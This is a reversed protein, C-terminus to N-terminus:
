IVTMVKVLPVSKAAVSELAVGQMTDQTAESTVSTSWSAPPAVVGFHQVLLISLLGDRPVKKVLNEKFLWVILCTESDKALHESPLDEFGRSTKVFNSGLNWDAVRGRGAGCACGVGWVGVGEGGRRRGGGVCVCRGVCVCWGVRVGCVVEGEGGGRGREGRGVFVCVGCRWREWM